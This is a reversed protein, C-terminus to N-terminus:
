RKYNDPMYILQSNLEISEPLLSSQLHKEKIFQYPFNHKIEQVVTKYSPPILFSVEQNQEQWKRAPPILDSDASLIILKDIEKEALLQMAIVSINVDTEKEEYTNYHKKCQHCKKTTQKFKGLIVNIGKSQLFKTYIKHRVLPSSAKNDKLWHAYATFYYVDILKENKRIFLSSLKHLDVWKLYNFSTKRSSELSKQLRRISHYFNFGDILVVVKKL